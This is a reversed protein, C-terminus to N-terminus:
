SVAMPLEFVRFVLINTNISYRFNITDGACVMFDFRFLDNPTLAVGHNFGVVQTNAARTITASLVGGVSFAAEVRFAAPDFDPALAAAIIDAPTVYGAVNHQVEMTVPATGWGGSVPLPTMPTVPTWIGTIEQYYEYAVVIQRFEAM